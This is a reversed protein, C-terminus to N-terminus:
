PTLHERLFAVRLFALNEAVEEQPTMHTVGSLPLVSHSRGAAMLASSLRLTHAAVVNDDALGHILLLPRELGSALPLLSNRDYVEPATRPDGLYRETYTTDYLRWETVPAGAVAAHFVDPRALVALASLYGGYSWGTIGVRSTDVEDPFAAAVAQLAEVQDDLTVGAFDGAVAREWAHGRGPTGRGDAVIVCFGQDALWQSEAFMRASALVRQAHPGGYPDMLVPLPVGPERDRPFLVAVRLGHAGAELLHVHPEIPFTEAVSAIEVPGGTARHVTVTTGPHDLASRTVVRTPGGVVAGHVAAGATLHELSGDFEVRHLHIETPETSGTIWCGRADAALLSRVQLGDPTLAAGDLVVRRWGDVDEVTLLRGGDVWRPAAALEVWADDTLERVIRTSGDTVSVALVLSHRQDRSLVQLLPDGHASWSVRALYEFATRDWDIETRAGDLGVHWLSVDANTTGAAPYRVAQAPRDPHEPNAIHWVPVPAEDFREVLLSDGDPAWWFGRMREMEEAAAFEAQGWTVTAEGAAPGAVERDDTGDVNIVRLSRGSAYAIRRGTPDLRPDVVGDPTPLRRPADGDLDVVWLAGSLAFCASTATADIDYGVIGAASERSRERRAREAASLEEGSGALLERPDAVTRETGSDVDLAYLIGTRTVGDPTRVFWVTGGDPSVSISRPVGLTFRLTRAALRPYSDTM